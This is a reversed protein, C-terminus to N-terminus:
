RDVPRMSSGILSPDQRRLLARVAAWDIARRMITRGDATLSNIDYGNGGWPLKVRRGAATGTDFLAGGTDIADLMSTTSSPRRALVLLGPALTGARGGVQQGSSSFTVAGLSFPQTIYHTNNTIEISAVTFTTDASCIGFEDTIKEEEIVVGITAGRLKTGLQGTAIEEAVYAVDAIAVAANFESQSASEDILSVAYGWGEILTKKAQEQATLSGPNVVVLLLKGASGAVIDANMGWALARQVLLRGSNNLRDWNLATDRGLPLMVRRGAASGGGTLVAGKALVVLSGAGGTTALSQLGAAATGSVTLQEMAGSYIDLPGAPFVSTIYHSADTVTVAAGVRQASGSAFGIESNYAGDQSVVGIALGAVKTGVGNANITESIFIVDNNAAQSTFTAANESEGIINVTYGWSEFLTKKAADAAVLTTPNIVVMLVRRSGQPALCASGCDCAYTITLKPRQSPDAHESSRFTVRTTANAAALVLGQNPFAGTSWGDVLSTVDWRYWGTTGAAATANAVPTLDYDGGASTWSTGPNRQNWSAGSGTTGNNSGEVWGSTVRHVSISSGPATSSDSHSYLELTAGLVRTDSPIVRLDFSLLSTDAQGGVADEVWLEASGGFNLTPGDQKLFVDGAPELFAGSSAQHGTVSARNLTRTVGNALTGTAQLNVSTVPGSGVVVDLRPREAVTGESSVYQAHVGEAASALLIGYNPAGNVWAQVAATLNVKVWAGTAAQPTIMALVQTDFKGNMSNWTANAATWDATVRHITIPGQPHAGGGGGSSTVFFSASASNIRSGAALGSVNFRFLAHEVNGSEFRIHQTAAGGNSTTPQDNRIWADQDVSLSQATASSGGTATASYSNAGLPVTPITFNGSCTRLDNQSLAHQLGAQALYDAQLAESASATRDADAGGETVLLLGLAAVLFLTVLVTILLFGRQASPM